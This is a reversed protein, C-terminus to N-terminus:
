MHSRLRARVDSKPQPWSDELERLCRAQSEQRFFAGMLTYTGIGQQTATLRDGLLEDVQLRLAGHRADCLATANQLYVDSVGLTTFAVTNLGPAVAEFDHALSTLCSVNEFCKGIPEPGPKLVYETYLYVELGIARCHKVCARLINSYQAIEASGNGMNYANVYTILRKDLGEDALRELFGVFRASMNGGDRWEEPMNGFEDLAVYQFDAVTKPPKPTLFLKVYDVASQVGFSFNGLGLHADLSYYRDSLPMTWAFNGGAAAWPGAHAPGGSWTAIVNDDGPVLLRLTINSFKDTQDGDQYYDYHVFLRKQAATNKDKVVSLNASWDDTKVGVARARTPVTSWMDATAKDDFLTAGPTWMGVGRMGAEQLAWGYKLKLSDKDDYWVQHYEGTSENKYNFFPSTWTSNWQRGHGQFSSLALSPLLQEYGPTTVNNRCNNSDCNYQLGVCDADDTGCNFDCAWWPWVAVLKDRPLGLVNVSFNFGAKIYTMASNAFGINHQGCDSYDMFLFLDVSDIASQLQEKSFAPTWPNGYSGIWVSLQSGPVARQMAAKLKRLTDTMGQRLTANTDMLGYIGTPGSGEWDQPVNLAFDSDHQVYLAPVQHLKM